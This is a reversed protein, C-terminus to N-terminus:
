SAKVDENNHPTTCATHATNMEKSPLVESPKDLAKHKRNNLSNIQVKIPTASKNNDNDKKYLSNNTREAIWLAVDSKIKLLRPDSDDDLYMNQTDSITKLAKNLLLESKCQQYFSFFGRYNTVKWNTFTDTEIGLKECVEKDSIDQLLYTKLKPLSISDLLSPRGNDDSKPLILKETEITNLM